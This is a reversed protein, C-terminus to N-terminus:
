QEFQDCAKRDRVLSRSLNRSRDIYDTKVALLSKTLGLLRERWIDGDPFFNRMERVTPMRLEDVLDRCQEYDPRAIWGWVTFNRLLRAQLRRPFWHVVPTLFHPELFFRQNPAQIFYGRAVRRCEDAFAQQRDLSYLHEILSNSFVIDFAKDKFPLRCADGLVDDMSDDNEAPPLLNLFVIRPREPLMAWISRTGGVDLVLSQRNLEMATWMRRMRKSRLRRNLSAYLHHIDLSGM